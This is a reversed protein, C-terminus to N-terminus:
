EEGYESGGRGETSFVDGVFAVGEEDGRLTTVSKLANPADGDALTKPVATCDDGNESAPPLAAKPPMRLM